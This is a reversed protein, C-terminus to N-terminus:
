VLISILFFRAAWDPACKVFGSGGFVGTNQVGGWDCIDM